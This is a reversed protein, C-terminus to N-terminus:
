INSVLEILVGSTTKPHLFVVRSDHLSAVPEGVPQMGAKKAKRLTEDLNDVQFAIHHIGEGRKEIFRAIVSDSRTAEMLEITTEGVPLFATRLHQNKLETIGTNILGLANEYMKLCEKLNKVAIGIHAIKKIMDCVGM